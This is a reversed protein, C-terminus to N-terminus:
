YCKGWPCKDTKGQWNELTRQSYSMNIMTVKVESLGRFFNIVDAAPGSTRQKRRSRM